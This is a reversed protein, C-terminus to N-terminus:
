ECQSIWRKMLKGDITNEGDEREPHWQVATVPYYPHYFAEVIEGQSTAFPVLEKALDPLYVCDNHFSNVRYLDEDLVGSLTDIIKVEHFQGVHGDQLCKSIQGGFFSNIMQAGRCVGLVPMEKELAYELMLSECRDRLPDGLDDGGTLLVADFSFSNLFKNLDQYANSILLPVIEYKELFKIWDHSIGDRREVYTVSDASRM